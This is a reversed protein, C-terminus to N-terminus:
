YRTRSVASVTLSVANLSKVIAAQSARMVARPWHFSFVMSAVFSLAARRSRAVGALVDPLEGACPDRVWLIVRRRRRALARIRCVATRRVAATMTAPMPTATEVM